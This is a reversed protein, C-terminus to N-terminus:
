AGSEEGLRHPVMGAGGEFPKRVWQGESISQSSYPPFPTFFRVTALVDRFAIQDNVRVLHFLVMLQLIVPIRVIHRGLEWRYTSHQSAVGRCEEHERFM